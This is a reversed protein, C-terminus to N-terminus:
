RTVTIAKVTDDLRTDRDIYAIGGSSKAVLDIAAASSHAEGPPIGRGSFILRQWYRTVYAVSKGHIAGCFQERLRSKAPQDIPVIEEGGHWSRQRKLYIASLEARSISAVPNSRNVIVRFPLDAAAPAADAASVITAVVLFLERLM